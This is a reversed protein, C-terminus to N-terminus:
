AFVKFGNFSLRLSLPDASLNNVQVKVTSAPPIFKPWYLLGQFPGNGCLNPIPVFDSMIERGSGSDTLLITVPIEATPIVTGDDQQCFAQIAGILFGSDNNTTFKGSAGVSAALPLFDIEYSFFDKIRDIFEEPLIGWFPSAITAGAIAAAPMSRASTVKM